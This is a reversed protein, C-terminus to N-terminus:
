TPQIEFSDPSKTQKSRALAHNNSHSDSYIVRIQCLFSFETSKHFFTKMFSVIYKAHVDYQGRTDKRM